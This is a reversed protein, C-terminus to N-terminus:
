FVDRSALIESLRARRKKVDKVLEAVVEKNLFGEHNIFNIDDTQEGLAIILDNGWKEHLKEWSTEFNAYKEELKEEGYNERLFNITQEWIDVIALNLTEMMEATERVGNALRIIKAEETTRKHIGEM